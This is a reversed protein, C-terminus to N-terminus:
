ACHLAAAGHGNGTVIGYSIGSSDEGHCASSPRSDRHSRVVSPIVTMSLRSMSM